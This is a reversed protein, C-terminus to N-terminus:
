EGLRQSNDIFAQREEGELGKINAFAEAIRRMTSRQPRRYPDKVLKSFQAFDMKMERAVVSRKVETSEFQETIWLNEPTPETPRAKYHPSGPNKTLSLKNAPFMGFQRNYWANLLLEPSVHLSTLDESDPASTEIGTITDKVTNAVLAISHIKDASLDRWAPLKDNGSAFIAGGVYAAHMGQLYNVISPDMSRRVASISESDEMLDSLLRACIRHRSDESGGGQTYHYPPSYKEHKLVRYVTLHSLNVDSAIKRMSFNRGHHRYEEIIYKSVHLAIDAVSPKEEEPSAIIELLGQELTTEEELLDNEISNNQQAHAEQVQQSELDMGVAGLVSFVLELEEPTRSSMVKLLEPNDHPHLQM